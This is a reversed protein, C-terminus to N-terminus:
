SHECRLVITVCDPPLDAASTLDNVSDFDEVVAMKSVKSPSHYESM